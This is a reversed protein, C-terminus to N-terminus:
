QKMQNKKEELSNCNSSPEDSQLECNGTIPNRVLRKASIYINYM